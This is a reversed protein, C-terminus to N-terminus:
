MVCILVTEMISFGVGLVVLRQFIQNFARLMFDLRETAAQVIRALSQELRGAYAGTHIQSKIEPSLLASAAFADGFTDNGALSDRVALLDRRIAENRVVPLALDFMRTVELGGAEYALRFTSFFLVTALGIETERLLPLQLLLTDLLRRIPALQCLLWGILVALGTSAFTTGVFWGATEYKGFYVFILARLIWGFVICAAPYLWTNRVLRVSPAVRREYQALLRFAEVLRGTTEGARVLPLYHRPFYKEGAALAESLSAGADCQALALPIIKQLQRSCLSRSSTALAQRVPMASSLCLAMSDSFLWLTQNDIRM